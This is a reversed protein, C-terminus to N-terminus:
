DFIPPPRWGGFASELSATVALAVDERWPRAVVQVGIPLGEASQGVRVVAAPWGTLNYTMTYTFGSYLQRFRDHPMAPFAVVPALVFDYADMFALMRRRFRDWHDIIDILVEPPQPDSNLYRDLTSEEEATGAAKLLLRAWAAGGWGRMLGVLIELSEEIGPPRTEDFPIGMGEMALAAERTAAIIEETPRQIGNDVYFVGRLTKLDVAAPDGLPVPAIAPDRGDPGAILPLILSLDEVYRAMPGLQTLADLHSGPGIAHGTRPVRGSTPKIGAIGCFHAPIRISGGTDSGIDFPAGGSAVIAAAGGSSGGPSRDLDYPNSTRGYVPNDTEYSLTFEPTNSKGILIAGAKHLRAVATADATPRFERRGPTGWSTIVGATDLSDKITMPLGHLPGIIQGRALTADAKRARALAEEAPIQVVANLQPNVADIRALYLQTLEVASIKKARIAQALSRASSFLIQDL